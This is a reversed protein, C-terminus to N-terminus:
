ENKDQESKETDVNIFVEARQLYDSVTVEDAEDKVLETFASNLNYLASSINDTSKTYQKIVDFREKVLNLKYAKVLVNRGNYPQYVYKILKEESFVDPSIKQVAASYASFDSEASAIVSKTDLEFINTVSLAVLRM